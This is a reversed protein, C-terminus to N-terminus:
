EAVGSNLHAVRNQSPNSENFKKELYNEIHYSKKGVKQEIMQKVLQNKHKKLFIAKKQAQKANALQHEFRSKGLLSAKLFYISAYKDIKDKYFQETQEYYALDGNEPSHSPRLTEGRFNPIIQSAFFVLCILVVLSLIVVMKSKM